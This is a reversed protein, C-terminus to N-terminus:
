NFSYGKFFNFSDINGNVLNIMEPTWKIKDRSKPIVPMIIDSCADSYAKPCDVQFFKCLRKISELPNAIIDEFKMELLDLENLNLKVRKITACLDFYDRIVEEQSCSLGRRHHIRGISDFPNRIIHIFKVRVRVKQELRKLISLNNKIRRVTGEGKKDGIVLIKKFKGQWSNKVRYSYGSWSRGANAFTQSNKLILSFIQSRSFGKDVLGLIDAEHSIVINPHADLLSGVLSHGSRAYGIFICFTNVADFSKRNWLSLWLSWIYLCWYPIYAHKEKGGISAVPWAQCMKSQIRIIASKFKSM